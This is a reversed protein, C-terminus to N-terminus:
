LTVRGELKSTFILFVIALSSILGGVLFTAQYSGTVDKLYGGLVPGIGGGIGFALGELVGYITGISKSGFIDGTVAPMQPICGGFSYGFILALLYLMLVNRVSMLLIISVTLLIFCIMLVRIRGIKDSLFGITLRGFISSVGFLSISGAAMLSPIGITVAFPVMHTIPIYTSTFFFAYVSLLLWFARTRLAVGLTINTVNSSESVQLENGMSGLIEGYAKLVEMTPNKVLLGAVLMVVWVLVGCLIFAERWGYLAILMDCMPPMLIAGLGAGVTVLGLATGRKKVFWRIVTSYTTIFIAGVGMSAMLGYFFYFQLLTVTRSSLILGLGTLFGGVWLPLRPGYIDTLKGMLIASVIYTAAHISITASTEASSWGFKTCMPTFFVGFAYFIGYM